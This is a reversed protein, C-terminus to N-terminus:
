LLDQMARICGVTTMMSLNENQKRETKHARHMFKHQVPTSSQTRNANPKHVTYMKQEDLQVSYIWHEILASALYM